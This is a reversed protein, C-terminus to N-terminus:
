YKLLHDTSFQVGGESWPHHLYKWGFGIFIILMQEKVAEFKASRRTLKEVSKNAVKKNQRCAPSHLM